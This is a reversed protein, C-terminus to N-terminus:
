IQQICDETISIGGKYDIDLGDDLSSEIYPAEPDGDYLHLTHSINDTSTTFTVEFNCPRAIDPKPTLRFILYCHKGLDQGLPELTGFKCTYADSFKVPLETAPTAVMRGFIHAISKSPPFSKKGPKLLDGQSLQQAHRSRLLGCWNLSMTLFDTNEVFATLLLLTDDDSLPKDAEAPINAGPETRAYERLAAGNAQALLGPIALLLAVDEPTKRDFISQMNEIRQSNKQACRIVAELPIKKQVLINNVLEMPVDIAM